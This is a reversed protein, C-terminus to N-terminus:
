YLIRICVMQLYPIYLQEEYINCIPRNGVFDTDIKSLLNFKRLIQWTSIIIERYKDYVNNVFNIDSTQGLLQMYATCKQLM